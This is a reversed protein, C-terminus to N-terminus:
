AEKMARLPEASSDAASGARLRGLFSDALAQSLDTETVKQLGSWAPMSNVELVQFRGDRDRIIDVGGYGAGVARTAAVALGAMPEALPMAEPAAGQHINTIWQSGRREM